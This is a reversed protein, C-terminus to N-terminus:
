TLYFSGVTCNSFMRSCFLAFSHFYNSKGYKFYLDMGESFKEERSNATKLYVSEDYEVIAQQTFIHLLVEKAEIIQFCCSSIM